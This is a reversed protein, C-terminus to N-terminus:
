QKIIRIVSGIEAAHLFYTGTQLMSLDICSIGPSLLGTMWTKGFADLIAYSTNELIQTKVFLTSLVPNPYALLADLLREGLSGTADITVEVTVSNGTCGNFSPTVTYLMIQQTSDTSTLVDSISSSNQIATSEGTVMPNDTASWTFTTGSISSTLDLGVASGNLISVNTSSTVEPRPKVTVQITSTPSICGFTSIVNVNYFVTQDVLSTNVLVDSISASTQMTTTEGTVNTNDIAVWNFIGNPSTSSLVLNVNDGSCISATNASTLMPVEGITVTVTQATGTIGGATPTVTYIVSAGPGFAMLFDAIFNSNQLSTSEGSVNPNDTAVWSFTAGAQNATLSLGVSSGSCITVANPSTMIPGNQCPGVVVSVTQSFGFCGNFVPTVTYTVTQNVGTTNTLVDNITSSNQSILSEGTVNANSAAVWSFSCGPITANLTLNVPSGCSINLSSPSTMVPCARLTVTITQSTGSCGAATPTVTYVVTQDTNTPNNLVDSIVNIFQPSTSEGSVNPNNTAVWSFVTNQVTSTLNLGVPGTCCITLANTNTMQPIPLVTVTVTQATGTNGNATPTVTYTVTQAVSTTNVLVDNITSGSQITISEGSVNPNSAAVWSYTSNAQNSTLALGVPSGSCITIANPSTMVPGVQSQPTVTVTVTQPVGSCGNATPIVSYTVAQNVGSTNTLLDNITSSTQATISEGTINVNSAALWSFTSGILNSTLTLGVSGGSSITINNVSTVIPVPNVTVNISTTPSVCGFQNVISINYTVSQVSNSTNTLVDSIVSSTQLSTSEGSISTNNIASWNFISNPSNAILPMNVNNGSCINTSNPSTLFPAPVITVAVLQSPGTCNNATPTVNYLITQQVVSNSFLFDTIVNGNQMTLSEGFVNVNDAAAVWTFTTNPQDATLALNIGQGSCVTITNISTVQPCQGFGIIASLSLIPLLLLKKM